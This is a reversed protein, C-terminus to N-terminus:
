ESFTVTPLSQLLPSLHVPDPHFLVLVKLCLYVTLSVCFGFECSVVRKHVLNVKFPMCPEDIRRGNFFLIIRAMM